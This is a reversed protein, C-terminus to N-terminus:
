VSFVYLSLEKQNISILINITATQVTGLGHGTGDIM